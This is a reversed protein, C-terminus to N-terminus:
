TPELVAMPIGPMEGIDYYFLSTCALPLTARRGAPRLSHSPAICKRMTCKEWFGSLGLSAAQLHYFFLIIQIYFKFDIAAGLTSRLNRTITEYRAGAAVINWSSLNWSDVAIRVM